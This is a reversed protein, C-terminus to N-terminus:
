RIVAVFFLLQSRFPFLIYILMFSFVLQDYDSVVPISFPVLPGSSIPWNRNRELWVTTTNLLHHGTDTM